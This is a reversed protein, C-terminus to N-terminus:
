LRKIFIVVSENSDCCAKMDLAFNHEHIFSCKLVLSTWKKHINSHDFRELNQNSICRILFLFFCKMKVKKADLWSEITKDVTIQYLYEQQKSLPAYVLVERKPPVLLEM